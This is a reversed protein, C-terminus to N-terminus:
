PEYSLDYVRASYDTTSIYQIRRGEALAVASGVFTTPKTGGTIDILIDQRPLGKTKNLFVYAEDTAKALEETQTEFDLGEKYDPLCDGIATIEFGGDGFLHKLLASFLPLQRLSGQEGRSPIVILHRLRARHHAVAKVPMCWNNARQREGFLGCFADVDLGNPLHEQELAAYLDKPLTSLYLILGRVEAPHADEVIRPRMAERERRAAILLPVMMAPFALLGTLLHKWGLEHGDDHWQLIEYFASAFLNLATFVLAVLIM